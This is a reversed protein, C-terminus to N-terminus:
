SKSSATLFVQLLLILETDAHISHPLRPAMMMWSGAQVKKVSDGLTIEGSGQLVHMIAQHPTAHERLTQGAAFPLLLIKTISDAYIAHGQITPNNKASALAAAIEASLDPIFHFPQDTNMGRNDSIAVPIALLLAPLPHASGFM